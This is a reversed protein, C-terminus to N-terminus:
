AYIEVKKFYDCLEFKILFVKREKCYYACINEDYKLELNACDNCNYERM